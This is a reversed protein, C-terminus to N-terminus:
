AADDWGRYTDKATYRELRPHLLDRRGIRALAALEPLPVPIRKAYTASVLDRTASSDKERDVRGGQLDTNITAPTSYSILRYSEDEALALAVCTALAKGTAGTRHVTLTRGDPTEWTTICGYEARQRGSIAYPTRKGTM